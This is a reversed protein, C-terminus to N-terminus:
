HTSVSVWPFKSMLEAMEHSMSILEKELVGEGISKRQNHAHLVMADVEDEFLTNVINWFYEKEVQRGQNIKPPMYPKVEERESFDEYMAKISLEPFNGVDVPKIDSKMM